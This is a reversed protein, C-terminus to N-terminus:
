LSEISKARGTKGRSYGNAALLDCVSSGHVELDRAVDLAAARELLYRRRLYDRLDLAGLERARSELPARRAARTARGVQLGGM